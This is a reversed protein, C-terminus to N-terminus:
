DMRLNGKLIAEMQGIINDLDMLNEKMIAVKTFIEMQFDKLGKDM